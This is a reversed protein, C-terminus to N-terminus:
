NVSMLLSLGKKIARPTRFPSKPLLKLLMKTSEIMHIVALSSSFQGKKMM